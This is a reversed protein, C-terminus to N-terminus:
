NCSGSGCNKNCNCKKRIPRFGIDIKTSEDITRIIKDKISNFKDLAENLEKITDNNELDDYLNVLETAIREKDKSQNDINSQLMVFENYKQKANEDDDFKDKANVLKKYEISNLIIQVLENTKDYYNM